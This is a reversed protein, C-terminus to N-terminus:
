MGMGVPKQPQGLTRYLPYWTEKGPIYCSLNSVSLVGLDVMLTM